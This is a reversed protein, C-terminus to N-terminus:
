LNKIKAPDFGESLLDFKPVVVSKDPKLPNLMAMCNVKSFDDEVRVCPMHGLRNFGLREGFDKSHKASSTVFTCPDAEDFIIVMFDFRGDPRDIWGYFVVRCYIDGAYRDWKVEPFQNLWATIKGILKERIDVIMPKLKKKKPVLRQQEMALVEPDNDCCEMSCYDMWAAQWTSRIVRKYSRDIIHFGRTVFTPKKVLWWRPLGGWYRKGCTMCFQIPVWGFYRRYWYRWGTIM